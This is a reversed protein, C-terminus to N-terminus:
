LARLTLILVLVLLRMACQLKHTDDAAAEDIVNQKRMLLPRTEEANCCQQVRANESSGDEFITDAM